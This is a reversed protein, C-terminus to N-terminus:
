ERAQLVVCWSQTDAGSEVPTFVDNWLGQGDLRAIGRYSQLDQTWGPGQNKDITMYRRVGIAYQSFDAFIIDGLTGLPSCHETFIVPRTMLWFKGDPMMSVIHQGSTGMTVSLSTLQTITTPSALWVGRTMGRGYMRSYMDSINTHTLTDAAQGGEKGQTILAPDSLVGLMTGAGNGRIAARDIKWAITESLGVGLQQEFDPSDSILENSAQSYLALKKAILQIMRVNGTTNTATGGEALWEATWGFPTESSNDSVALGAIKKENSGMPIIRALPRVIESELAQDFLAATHESPVLFGSDGGVGETFQSAPMLRPDARGIQITRMFDGLTEFSGDRQADPFMAAFSKDGGPPVVGPGDAGNDITQAPNSTTIPDSMPQVKRGRSRNSFLDGMEVSLATFRKTEIDNLENRGDVMAAQKISEREVALERMKKDFEEKTLTM